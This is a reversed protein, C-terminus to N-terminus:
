ALIDAEEPESEPPRTPMTKFEWWESGDYEGRELWWDNGVVKLSQSIENGGFGNDYNIKTALDAFEAWGFSLPKRNVPHVQVWRVDDPGKGNEGLVDVTEELLNM